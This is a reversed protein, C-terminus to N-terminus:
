RLSFRTSCRRPEDAVVDGSEILQLLHAYM